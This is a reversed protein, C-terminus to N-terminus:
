GYGARDYSIVRTVKALEPQVYRWDSVSSPTGSGSELLITPLDTQKGTAYMHLQYDGVDVLKGVPGYTSSSSSLIAHYIFIGAFVLLFLIAAASLAQLSKKRKSKFELEM